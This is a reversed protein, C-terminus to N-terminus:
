CMKSIGTWYKGYCLPSTSKKKHVEIQLRTNPSTRNRSPGSLSHAHFQICIESCNLGQFHTYFRDSFFALSMCPHKFPFSWVWRPLFLRSSWVTLGSYQQSTKHRKRLFTRLSGKFKPLLIVPKQMVVFCSRVKWVLFKKKGFLVHSEDGVWGGGVVQGRGVRRHKGSQIYCLFAAMKVCNLEDLRFRLRHEVGECFVRQPICKPVHCARKSRYMHLSPPWSTPTQSTVPNIKRWCWETITGTQPAVAVCWLEWNVLCRSSAWPAETNFDRDEKFSDQTQRAEQIERFRRINRSRKFQSSRLSWERLCSRTYRSPFV